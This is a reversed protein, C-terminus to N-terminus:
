PLVAEIRDIAARARQVNENINRGAHQVRDFVGSPVSSLVSNPDEPMSGCLRDALQEIRVRLLEVSENAMDLQETFAPAQRPPPAKANAYSDSTTLAM